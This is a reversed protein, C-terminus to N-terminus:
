SNIIYQFSTKYKIIQNIKGIAYEYKLCILNFIHSNYKNPIPIMAITYILVVNNSIIKIIINQMLINDKIAKLSIIKYRM